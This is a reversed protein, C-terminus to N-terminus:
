IWIRKDIEVKMLKHMGNDKEPKCCYCGINREAKGRPRWKNSPTAQKKELKNQM